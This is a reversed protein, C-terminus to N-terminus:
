DGGASLTQLRRLLQHSHLRLLMRTFDHETAARDQLNRVRFLRTWSGAEDRLTLAVMEEGSPNDVMTWEAHVPFDYEPLCARLWESAQEVLPRFTRSARVDPAVDIMAKIM